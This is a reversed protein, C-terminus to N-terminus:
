KIKFAVTVGYTAPMGAYRAAADYSQFVSTWYYKDFIKKGWVTVKWAEGDAEFGARADVTTYGAICFVCGVGPRIVTAPLNAYNIRKAAIVADASSRANVTFGIFPTGGGSTQM